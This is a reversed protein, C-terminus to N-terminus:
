FKGNKKDLTILKLRKWGISAKQRKTLHWFQVLCVSIIGNNQWVDISRYSTKKIDLKATNTPQTHTYPTHM